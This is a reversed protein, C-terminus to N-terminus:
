AKAAARSDKGRSGVKGLLDTLAVQLSTFGAYHVTRATVGSKRALELAPETTEHRNWHLMVLLDVKGSALREGVQNVLKQPSVYNALLWEGDFGWETALEEFKPHHKRQRENGGVVLIRPRHGLSKKVSECLLKGSGPDAPPTEELELLKEIAALDDRALEPFRIEVDKLIGYAEQLSASERKARLSRAIATQLQAREFERGEVEEYVAALEAKIEVHDLAQGVFAENKLMVELEQFKGRQALLDRMEEYVERAAGRDGQMNHATLLVRMAEIRHDLNVAIQLVRNAAAAAPAAEGLSLYELAVFLLQDPVTGRGMEVADLFKLAVKRDLAKLAEHVPYFSELDPKVTDLAQEMLKQARSAEDKNGAALLSAALFFRTRDVLVADRGNVRRLGAVAADFCAAAQVYDGQEYLLVGKAHLAEPVAKDPDAVAAELWSLGASRTPRDARPELEEIRHVRMEALAGLMAVHSALRVQDSALRRADRLQSLAQDFESALLLREAIARHYRAQVDQPLRAFGSVAVCRQLIAVTTEEGEREIRHELRTLLDTLAADVLMETDADASAHALYEIAKLALGLDGCWFLTRMVLPLCQAAIRPDQLLALISTPDRLLDAVWNREGRRDHARVRGFLHWREETSNVPPQPMELGLLVKVYGILFWTQAREPDLVWLEHIQQRVDQPKEDGKEAAHVQQLLLRDLATEWAM